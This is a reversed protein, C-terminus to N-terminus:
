KKFLMKVYQKFHEMNEEVIKRDKHVKVLILSGELVAIFHEALGKGTFGAGKAYMQKAADIDEALKEGMKLFGDCCIKRIEPYTDSLEQAFTGLLCGKMEPDRSLKIAFDIHGYVRKLPDKEKEISSKMEGMKSCVRDLLAKALAEKSEFYHFFSGKTVHAKDCVDDVSTAVYGKSLMLEYAADLLKEKTVPHEQATRM